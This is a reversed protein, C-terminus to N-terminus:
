FPIDDDDNDGFYTAEEDDEFEDELAEFADPDAPKGGGFSEGHARFQVGQLQANIRKGYQGTQVWVAIQANVYCGSYLKGDAETLPQKPNKDVTTPKVQSRASVFYQDRYGDYPEGTEDTKKNGDRLCLKDNKQLGKLIQPGDDNGWKEKAAASIAKKLEDMQPHDKPLILHASYAPKDGANMASPEFLNPFSLRVNDLRIVKQVQNSNAM